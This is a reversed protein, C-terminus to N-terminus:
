LKLLRTINGALMAQKEDDTFPMRLLQELQPLPDLSMGDTGFLIREVGIKRVIRPGDLESLGRHPVHPIRDPATFGQSTDFYLNPYKMALEVREDWWVQGLHALIINLRPFAEAVTAWHKPEGYDIADEPPTPMPPRQVLIGPTPWAGSDALIVLGLEQCKQYVPLMVEDYPFFSFMGPHLKIGKVGQSARLEVEKVMGASGGLEPSICSYPMLQPFRSYVDVGWQNYERIKPAVVDAITQEQARREAEPLHLLKPKEALPGRFRGAPLTMFMMYSIGEREMYEVAKEPTGIRDRTRRGPFLWAKEEEANMSLHIHSDIIKFDEM